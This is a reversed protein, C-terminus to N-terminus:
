TTSALANRECSTVASLLIDSALRRPTSTVTRLGCREYFIGYAKSNSKRPLEHWPRSSSATHRMHALGGESVKYAGYENPCMRSFRGAALRNSVLPILRRDLYSARSRRPPMM